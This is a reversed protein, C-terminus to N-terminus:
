GQAHDARKLLIVKHPARTVTDVTPSPMVPGMYLFEQCGYDSCVMVGNSLISKVRYKGKNGISHKVGEHDTHYPGTGQVVKIIDGPLLTTYDEVMQKRFKKIKKKKFTGDKPGSKMVFAHNCSKCNFSRVGNITNCNRCMKQGRKLKEM